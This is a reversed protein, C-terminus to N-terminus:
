PGGESDSAPISNVVGDKLVGSGVWGFKFHDMSLIPGYLRFFKQINKFLEFIFVHKGIFSNGNIHWNKM